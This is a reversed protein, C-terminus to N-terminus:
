DRKQETEFGNLFIKRELQAVDTKEVPLVIQYPYTLLLEGEAVAFLASVGRGEDGSLGFDAAITQAIEKVVSWCAVVAVDDDDRRSWLLIAEREL